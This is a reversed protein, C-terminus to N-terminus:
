RSGRIPDTWTRDPCEAINGTRREQLVSDVSVDSLEAPEAPLVSGLGKRNRDELADRKIRHLSDSSIRYRRCIEAIRYQYHIELEGLIADRVEQSIWKARSM